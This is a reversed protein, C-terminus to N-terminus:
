SPFQGAHRLLGDASRVPTAIEDAAALFCRLLPSLVRRRRWILVLPVAGSAGSWPWEAVDGRDLMDAVALRPVLASGVGAAVLRGIAALSGVEAAIAPQPIGAEAFAKDFIRRYICGAETTIFRLSAISQLGGAPAAGAAKPPVILALPEAAIVRRALREDAPEREFCFVADLAGDELDRLLEGSGAIKLRVRVDPQRRQFAGLWQPLRAAGITELAGVALSKGIRSAATEVAARAEDALALMEEAYPKLAEGAQTLFLGQRTRSFLAVGLEAELAQIQDSVSSQALHVREAARTVNRSEAVALFTKLLRPHVLARRGQARICIGDEAV